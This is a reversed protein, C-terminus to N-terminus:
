ERVPRGPCVSVQPQESWILANVLPMSSYRSFVGSSMNSYSLARLMLLFMNLFSFLYHRRLRQTSSSITASQQQGSSSAASRQQSSSVAAVLAGPRQRRGVRSRKPLCARLSCPICNSCPSTADSPSPVEDAAACTSAVGRM